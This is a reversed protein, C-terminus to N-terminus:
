SGCLKRAIGTADVGMLRFGPHAHYVRGTATDRLHQATALTVLAVVELPGLYHINGISCVDGSEMAAEVSPLCTEICDTLNLTISIM